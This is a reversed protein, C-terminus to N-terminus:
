SGKRKRGQAADAAIRNRVREIADYAGQRTIGAANALLEVSMGDQHWHFIKSDREIRLLDVAHQAKKIKRGLNSLDAKRAREIRRIADDDTNALRPVM